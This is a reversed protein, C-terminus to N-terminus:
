SQRGARRSSKGPATNRTGAPPGSPQSAAGSNEREISPLSDRVLDAFNYGRGTGSTPAEADRRVEPALTAMTARVSDAFRYGPGTGETVGMDRRMAEVDARSPASADATQRQPNLAGSSRVYNAFNYTDAEPRSDRQSGSDQQGSNSAM